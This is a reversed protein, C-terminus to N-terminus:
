AEVFGQRRRREGDPGCRLLVDCCRGLCTGCPRASPRPNLQPGWPVRPQGLGDRWEAPLPDGEDNRRYWDVVEDIEVATGTVTVMLANRVNAAAKAAELHDFLAVQPTQCVWWVVLYCSEKMGRPDERGAPGGPPVYLLPRPHAAGAAAVPARRRPFRRGLGPVSPQRGYPRARRGQHPRSGGSQPGSSVDGRAVPASQRVPGARHRPRSAALIGAARGRRPSGITGRLRGREGILM